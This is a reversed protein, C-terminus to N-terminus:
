REGEKIFYLRAEKGKDNRCLMCLEKAMDITLAFDITENGNAMLAFGVYDIDKEFLSCETINATYWRTWHSKDLELFDYLDKASVAPNDNEYNIPIIENM